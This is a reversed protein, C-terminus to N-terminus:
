CHQAGPRACEESASERRRQGLVLKEMKEKRKNGPLTLIASYYGKLCGSRGIFVGSLSGAWAPPFLLEGRVAKVNISSSTTMAMMAMRAAISKGTSALALSLAIRVVHMPLWFCIASAM